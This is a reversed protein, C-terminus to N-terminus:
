GPPWHMARGGLVHLHLHDVTQGGNTGTNIVVRYGNGLKQEKALERAVELLHALLTNDGSDTKALSSIHKKPIVLAHVPAQPKIDLIAFALEDEFVKKSPIAGAAIKCFLCDTSSTMGDLM